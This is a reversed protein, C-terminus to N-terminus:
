CIARFSGPLRTSESTALSHPACLLGQAASGPGGAWGFGVPDKNWGAQLPNMGSSPFCPIFGAGVCWARLKFVNRQEAKRLDSRTVFDKRATQLNERLGPTRPLYKSVLSMQLSCPSNFCIFLHM